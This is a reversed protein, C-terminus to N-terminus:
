TFIFFYKWINKNSFLSFCLRSGVNESWREGHSCPTTVEVCCLEGQPMEVKEESAGWLGWMVPCCLEFLVLKWVPPLKPLWGWQASSLARHREPIMKFNLCRSSPFVLTGAWPSRHYTLPLAMVQAQVDVVSSFSYKWARPVRWDGEMAELYLDVWPLDHGVRRHTEHGRRM